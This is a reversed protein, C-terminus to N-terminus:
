QPLGTISSLTDVEVSQNTATLNEISFTATAGNNGTRGWASTGAAKIFPAEPSFKATLNDLTVSASTNTLFFFPTSNYNSAEPELTFTSNKATFSGLGEDADGSMSQYIMIASNDINDRNGLGSATFDCNNIMVDNKGEVVAIQAGSALGTSSNVTINGTSYILPSGAGATNLTMNSVNVIGSGRDTALSASSAGNTSITLHDASINGSYTAHLGRSSDKTTTINSNTINVNANNTAVIANAGETTTNIIVGDISATSNQGVVTIASNTGYFSYTDDRGKFDESGSKTIVTGDGKLVLEGGNIVLFVVQDDKTSTYTGTSIEAKVGDILYAANYTIAKGDISVTASGASLDSATLTVNSPNTNQISVRTNHIITYAIVAAGLAILTGLCLLICLLKPNFHKSSSNSHPSTPIESIPTESNPTKSSIAASPHPTSESDSASNFTTKSNAISASGSESDSATHSIIPPEPHSTSSPTSAPSDPPFTPTTIADAVDKGSDLIDPTDDM